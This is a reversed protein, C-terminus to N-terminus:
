AYSTVSLVSCSIDLFLRAIEALGLCQFRIWDSTAIHMSIVEQNAFERRVHTSLPHRKFSIQLYFPNRFLAYM